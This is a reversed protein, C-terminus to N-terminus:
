LWKQDRCTDYPRVLPRYLMYRALCTHQRACGRWHSKSCKFSIQNTLQMNNCYYSIYFKVREHWHSHTIQIYIMPRNHIRKSNFTQRATKFSYM